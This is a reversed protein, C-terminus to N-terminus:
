GGSTQPIKPPPGKYLECTLGVLPCPQGIELGIHLAYTLDKAGLHYTIPPPDTFMSKTYEWNQVSWSNGSGIKLHEVLLEEDAGNKIGWAIAEALAWSNCAVAMNNVLKVIQGMGLDGCYTIKGMTELVPRYKELVNKDGGVSIGLEGTAARIRAGVVPADLVNVGKARAAEGVRRCFAPSLTSMLIVGSGPRSGQLVGDSGLVVQATDNDDRVMTIVVDSAEAVEKPTKVEKAGLGKMEEVPERRVHGCVATEFGSTVVRKAMPLGIDGLGIFGVKKSMKFVGEYHNQALTVPNDIWILVHRRDKTLESYEDTTDLFTHLNLFLSGRGPQTLTISLAM